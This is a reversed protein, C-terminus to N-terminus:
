LGNKHCSLLYTAISPPSSHLPPPSARFRAQVQASRSPTFSSQIVLDDTLRSTSTMCPRMDIHRHPAGRRSYATYADESRTSRHACRTPVPPGADSRAHRPPAPPGTAAAALASAAPRGPGYDLAPLDAGSAAAHRRVISFLRRPRSPPAHSQAPHLFSRSQVIRTM